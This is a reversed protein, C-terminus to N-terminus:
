ALSVKRNWSALSRWVLAGAFIALGLFFGVPMAQGENGKGLLAIINEGRLGLKGDAGMGVVVPIAVMTVLMVVQSAMYLLVWVAIPGGAGMSRFRSESGISAAAYAQAVYTVITLLLAIPFVVWAWGPMVLVLADWMAALGAGADGVGAWLLIALAVAVIVAVTYALVGYMLKGLFITSGRLPLAQTLYGQRGFSSRWFDVTLYVLVGVLVSAIAAIGVPLGLSSVFPWRTAALAAAGAVLITAVALHVALPLRTRLWEHKMVTGVM